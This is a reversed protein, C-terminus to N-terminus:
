RRGFDVNKEVSALGRAVRDALSGESNKSVAPVNLSTRRKTHRAPTPSYTPAATAVQSEQRALLGKVLDSLRSIEAKLAKVVSSSVSGGNDSKKAAEVQALATSRLSQVASPAEGSIQLDSFNANHDRVYNLVLNIGAETVQGTAANYLNGDREFQGALKLIDLDFGLITLAGTEDHIQPRGPPAPLDKGHLENLKDFKPEILKEVAKRQEAGAKVLVELGQLVGATEEIFEKHLNEKSFVPNESHVVEHATESELLVLAAKKVKEPANLIARNVLLVGKAESLNDQPM